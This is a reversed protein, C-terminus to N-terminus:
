RKMTPQMDQGPQERSFRGLVVKRLADYVLPLSREGTTSGGHEIASVAHAFDSSTLNYNFMCRGVM